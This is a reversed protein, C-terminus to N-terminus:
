NLFWDKSENQGQEVKCIRLTQLRRVHRTGASRSCLSPGKSTSAAQLKDVSSTPPGSIIEFWFSFTLSFANRVLWHWHWSLLNIVYGYLRPSFQKKVLYMLLRSDDLLYYATHYGQVSDPEPSGRHEGNHLHLLPLERVGKLSLRTYDTVWTPIPVPWVPGWVWHFIPRSSCTLKIIKTLNNDTLIQIIPHSSSALLKFWVLLLDWM